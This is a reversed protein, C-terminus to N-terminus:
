RLSGSRSFPELSASTSVVLYFYRSNEPRLSLLNHNSGPSPLEKELKSVDFQSDPFVYVEAVSGAQDREGRSVYLLKAVRRNMFHATDYSFLLSFDLSVPVEMSLGQDRFWGEVKEPTNERNVAIKEGIESDVAALTVPLRAGIWFYWGLGVALVLSAATALAIRIHRLRRVSRDQELRGLLRDQLGAPVPVARMAKGLAEDLRREQRAWGDCDPCQKLHGALAEAETVDLDASNRLFILLLRAHNCDM